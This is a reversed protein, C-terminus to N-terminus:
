NKVRVTTTCLSAESESGDPSQATVSLSHEGAALPVPQSTGSIGKVLGVAGPSVPISFLQIRRGGSVDYVNFQKVCNRTLMPSCAPTLRFDYDFRVTVRKEHPSLLMASAFIIALLISFSLPIALKTKLSTVGPYLM